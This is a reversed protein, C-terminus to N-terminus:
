SFNNLLMSTLVLDLSAFCSTLLVFFSLGQTVSIVVGAGPMVHFFTLDSLFAILDCLLTDLSASLNPLMSTPNRSASLISVFSYLFISVNLM